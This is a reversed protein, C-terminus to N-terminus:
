RQLAMSLHLDSLQYSAFATFTNGVLNQFEIDVVVYAFSEDERSILNGEMVEMGSSLVIEYTQVESEEGYLSKM